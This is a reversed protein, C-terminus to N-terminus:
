LFSQIVFTIFLLLLIFAFTNNNNLAPLRHIFELLSLIEWNKMEDIKKVHQFHKDPMVPKQIM